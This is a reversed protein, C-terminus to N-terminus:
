VQRYSRLLDACGSYQLAKAMWAPSRTIEEAFGDGIRLSYNSSGPVTHRTESFYATLRLYAEVVLQPVSDNTDGVTGTIRYTQCRPLYVGGVPTAESTVGSWTKTTDDWVDVTAGSLPNLHPRWDGPGNVTWVCHRPTCRRSIYSEIRLWLARDPIIPEEALGEEDFLILDPFTAPETEEFKLVSTEM